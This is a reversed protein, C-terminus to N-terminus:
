QTLSTIRMSILLIKCLFLLSTEILVLDVGAENLRWAVLFVVTFHDILYSDQNRYFSSWKGRSCFEHNRKKEKNKNLFNWPKPNTVKTFEASASFALSFSLPVITSPRFISTQIKSLNQEVKIIWKNKNQKCWTGGPHCSLHLISSFNTVDNSSCYLSTETFVMLCLPKLLLRGCLFNRQRSELADKHVKEM